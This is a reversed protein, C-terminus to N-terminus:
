HNLPEIFWETHLTVSSWLAGESKDFSDRAQRLTDMFGAPSAHQEGLRVPGFMEMWTVLGETEEPRRMVQANVGTRTRVHHCLRGSAKLVKESLTDPQKYYVFMWGNVTHDPKSRDTSM